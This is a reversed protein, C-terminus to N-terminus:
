SANLKSLAGGRLPRQGLLAVLSGFGVLLIALGAAPSQTFWSAVPEARGIFWLGAAVAALAVLQTLLDRVLASKQSALREELGVGAQVRAVFKRDPMREPPALASKLFRDFEDAM